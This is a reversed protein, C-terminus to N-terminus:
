EGAAAHWARLREALRDLQSAESSLLGHFDRQLQELTPVMGWATVQFVEFLGEARIGLAVKRRALIARYQERWGNATASISLNHRDIWPLWEKLQSEHCWALDAVRDAVGSIDVALDHGHGGAMYGDYTNLIVPTRVFTSKTEDAPYEPTFAHPVNILYAVSRVAHAVDWHDVHVGALPNEILPPCFLYDPEFARIEKWLAPLFDVAAHLRAERFPSGSRDVLQRFEFAGLRAAAEQERRRREATQARTMSQHGAAGDTCILIRRQAKAGHLERWREFTGAATFEFDDYHAHVFLIRM